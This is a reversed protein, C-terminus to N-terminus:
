DFPSASTVTSNRRRLKVAAGKETWWQHWHQAVARFEKDNKATFFGLDQGTASQLNIAAATRIRPDESVLLRILIPLGERRGLKTLCEGQALLVLPDTEEAHQLIAQTAEDTGVRTLAVICTVQMAPHHKKLTSALLNVDRPGVTVLLCREFSGNLNKDGCVEFLILIEKAFGQLKEARVRDVLKVVRDWDSSGHRLVYRVRMRREPDADDTLAKLKQTPQVAMNTLRRTATERVVFSPDSLEDLLRDTHAIEGALKRLEGAFDHKEEARGDPAPYGALIALSLILSRAIM